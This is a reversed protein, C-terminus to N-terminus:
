IQNFSSLIINKEWLEFVKTITPCNPDFRITNPNEGYDFWGQNRLHANTKRKHKRAHITFYGWKLGMTSSTIVRLPIHPRLDGKYVQSYLLSLKYKAQLSVALYKGSRFKIMQM